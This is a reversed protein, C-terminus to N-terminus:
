VSLSAYTKILWSSALQCSHVVAKTHEGCTVGGDHGAFVQVCQGDHSLWMWV